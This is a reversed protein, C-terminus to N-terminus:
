KVLRLYETWGCLVFIGFVSCANIRYPIEIWRRLHLPFRQIDELALPDDLLLRSPCKRIIATILNLRHRRSYLGDGGKNNAQILYCHTLHSEMENLKFFSVYVMVALNLAMLFFLAIVIAVYLLKIEIMSLLKM